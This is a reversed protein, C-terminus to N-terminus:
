FARVSWFYSSRRQRKDMRGRCQRCYEECVASFPCSKCLMRTKRCPSAEGMSAQQCSKDTQEVWVPCGSTAASNARELCCGQGTERNEERGTGPSFTGSLRSILGECSSAFEVGPLWRLAEFGELSLRTTVHDTWCLPNAVSAPRRGRSFIPMQALSPPCDPWRARACRHGPRLFTCALFDVRAILGSSENLHLLMRGTPIDCSGACRRPRDGFLWPVM